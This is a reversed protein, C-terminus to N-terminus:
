LVGGLFQKNVKNKWRSMYPFAVAKEAGLISCANLQRIIWISRKFTPKNIFLYMQHFLWKLSELQSALYNVTNPGLLLIRILISVFACLICSRQVFQSCEEGNRKAKTTWSATPDLEAQWYSEKQGKWVRVSTRWM